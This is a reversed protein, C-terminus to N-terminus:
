YRLRFRLRIGNGCTHHCAHSFSLNVCEGQGFGGAVLIVERFGLRATEIEFELFGTHLIFHQAAAPRDDCWIKQTRIDSRISRQWGHWFDLTVVLVLDDLGGCIRLERLKQGPGPVDVATFVQQFRCLLGRLAGM